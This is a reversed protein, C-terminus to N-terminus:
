KYNFYNYVLIEKFKQFNGFATLLAGYLVFINEDYFKFYTPDSASYHTFVTVNEKASLNNVSSSSIKRIHM